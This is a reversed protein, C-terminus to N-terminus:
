GNVQQFMDGSVLEIRRWMIRWEDLASFIAAKGLTAL